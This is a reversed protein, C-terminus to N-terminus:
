IPTMNSYTDEMNFEERRRFLTTESIGLVQAVSKWNM